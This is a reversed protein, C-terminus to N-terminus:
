WGPRGSVAFQRPFTESADITKWVGGWWRREYLIEKQHCAFLKPLLVSTEIETKILNFLLSVTLERKKGHVKLNEGPDSLQLRDITATTQREM